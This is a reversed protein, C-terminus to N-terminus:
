LGARAKCWRRFEVWFARWGENRIIGIGALALDYYRYRRTGPPALKKAVKTLKNILASRNVLRSGLRDIEVEAARLSDTLGMILSTVKPNGTGAATFLAEFLDTGNVTFDRHSSITTATRKLDALLKYVAGGYKEKTFTEEAFRWGNEALEMAKERHEILYEIKNALEVHNGPEYLLGNFGDKILEATGGGNAGIVPKKLMMGEVAVRGFSENVGSALVIDAENMIPYPNEKFGIFRIYAGLREQHVITELQRGYRGGPHGMLILEVDKGRGILEKTALIADKWGKGEEARGVSILRTATGRTFCSTGNDELAEAPISVRPYIIKVRKDSVDKFLLDKVYHSNAVITDSFRIVYDWMTSLPLFFKIGYYSPDAERVFWVHPKGMFSAAIAGWPIYVTNTAIVDPNIKSLVYKINYLLNEYSNRVSSDLKEEPFSPSACWWAYKIPIIAVGTEELKHRLPGDASVVVSCLVGYDRILEDVMQLLSRQGGYLHSSHSFFLVHLSKEKKLCLLNVFGGKDSPPLYHVWKGFDGESLSYIRRNNEDIAHLDFGIHSLKNLVEEPAYGRTQLYGPRFKLLLKVNKNAILLRHLGELIPIENGQSDIRILVEENPLQMLHETLQKMDVENPRDPSALSPMSPRADVAEDGDSRVKKENEGSVVLKFAKVNGLNDLTVKKQIREYSNTDPELSLVQCNPYLSGVLLSYYGDKAGIDVFLSGDHIYKILLDASYKEHDGRLKDEGPAFMSLDWDRLKVPQLKDSGAIDPQKKFQSDDTVLQNNETCLVEKGTLRAIEQAQKLSSEIFLAAKTSKYAEAKFTSYSKSAIRASKDPFNMMIMNKYRIGHKELWKETLDRYKELRSTVIWGIEVSPKFIPEVNAIFYRYNDGDDNEEETPDRCLVGDLDVCSKKLVNHTSTNWEFFRPREVLEHWFDVEKYSEATVYIAAYYIQYPLNAARIASKVGRMSRGTLVSDDVVLVKKCTDFDFKDGLRLGGQLVRRECLGEVDTLPLNLHLAILSGVLLGSRPIGVILDLDEPLNYIFEKIDENLDSISRYNM